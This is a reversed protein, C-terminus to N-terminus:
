AVIKMRNPDPKSGFLTIATKVPDLQVGDTHVIVFLSIVTLGSAEAIAPIM